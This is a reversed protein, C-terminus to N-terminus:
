FNVREKEVVLPRDKVQTYLSGLYEGIIGMFILQISSILFLGIIVPATGLSFQEWYIIKYILYVMALLFSVVAMFLGVFIAMRLPVKSHNVLGLMAMDYLTYLNNKTFGRKRLPQRFPLTTRNFGIECIVGRFYPYPDKMKRMADLVVKDLLGFGHFGPILDVESLRSVIKYYLKRLNFYLWPEDSSDKVAAVVQFGQEWKEIFQSIMEPPDQLDAAMILSADGTTQLLAYYPSRIHGFNRSNVILKIRKDQFAIKKLEEVTRDLSCNDIFIHEYDYQPYQAFVQKTREYVEQVNSEENFCPTVISIKKM